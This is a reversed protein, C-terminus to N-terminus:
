PTWELHRARNAPRHRRLIEVASPQPERYRRFRMCGPEGLANGGAALYRTEILTGAKRGVAGSPRSEDAGREASPETAGNVGVAGIIIHM